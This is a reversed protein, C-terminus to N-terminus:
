RAFNIIRDANIPLFRERVLTLVNIDQGAALVFLFKKLFSNYNKYKLTHM